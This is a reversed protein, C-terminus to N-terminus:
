KTKIKILSIITKYISHTIKMKEVISTTGILFSVTESIEAFFDTIM